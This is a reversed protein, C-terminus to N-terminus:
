KIKKLSDAIFNELEGDTTKAFNLFFKEEVFKGRKREFIVDAIDKFTEPIGLMLISPILMVPILITKAIISTLYQIVLTNNEENFYYEVKTGIRKQRLKFLKNHKKRTVPIRVYGQEVPNIYTYAM